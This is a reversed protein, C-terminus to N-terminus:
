VTLTERHEGWADRLVNAIDGVTAYAKVAELVRPLVNDRSRAARDVKELAAAHLGGDRRARVARLREVQESEIRPDVKMVPVPEADQIFANVGVILREKREM